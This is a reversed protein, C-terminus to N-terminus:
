IGLVIGDRKSRQMNRPMTRRILVANTYIIDSYSYVAPTIRGTKIVEANARWFAHRIANEAASSFTYYQMRKMM